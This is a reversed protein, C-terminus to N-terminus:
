DQTVRYNKSTSSGTPDFLTMEAGTGVAIAGTDSYNTSVLDPTSQLRHTAGSVSNFSTGLVDDVAVDNLDLTEPVSLVTAAVYLNSIQTASLAAGFVALEDIRGDLDQSAWDLSNPNANNAVNFWVGDGTVAAGGGIGASGVSAGDIYFEATSGLTVVATLMHWGGDYIPFGEVTATSGQTFSRMGSTNGCGVCRYTLFTTNAGAGTAWAADRGAAIFGFNGADNENSVWANITYAIAGSLNLANGGGSTDVFAGQQGGAHRFDAADGPLGPLGPGTAFTATGFPSLDNGEATFDTWDNEFRWYGAPNLANVADSFQTPEAPDPLSGPDTAAIYLNSIQAASLATGFVALDDIRGDLDQSAWDTTIDNANNAVNFWVGDGAISAGGGIGGSGVSAGDVFFEATGSLSVVATLMHWGGDYIPFGEVTATSGQTFSRMGSTNPCPVCRYTLFSTNAGAGAAWAADRGAAIFGFNGLDNENSVWANITYATAGTLKLANGGASIDARAGSQGGAHRFDAAGADLGPLGSSATLGAVGFPTLTNGGATSDTWDIEFQWYAVPNLADVADSFDSASAVQAAGTLALVAVIATLKKM